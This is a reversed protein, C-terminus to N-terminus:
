SNGRELLSTVAVGLVSLAGWPMSLHNGRLMWGLVQDPAVPCLATRQEANHRHRWRLFLTTAPDAPTEHRREAEQLLSFLENRGM